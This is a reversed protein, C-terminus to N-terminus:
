LGVLTRLMGFALVAIAVGVITLISRLRHRFANRIILKLIMFHEINM